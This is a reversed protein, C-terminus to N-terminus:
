STLTVLHHGMKLRLMISFIEFYIVVVIQVIKIISKLIKYGKTFSKTSLIQM